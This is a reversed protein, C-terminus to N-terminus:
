YGVTSDGGAASGAGTFPKRAVAVPEAFTLAIADWEDPSRVGRKIMDEKRELLLRSHADYKYGPGCADTQISDLDPIDAGGPDALWEKSKMWMEARRNRPGGGAQEGNDDIPPPELPEGGFNVLRIIEPGYWDMLIDGVGAGQGGVDIFVRTPKEADIIQMLWGAGAVNDLKARSDVKIVKRGRRRAVSFRDVGFRAPDVGLILPGRGEITTKRAKLVLAPTIYSDHGSTQFAEAATTPYEQFFLFEDKLESIKARRWVIQEADLGHQDMLDTEATTPRFGEPVAKRYEEQWFWPIFIAEYDSGGTEALQWQQHFFNGLGNATSELIVETGEADPVAQLAGAAHTDAHPWFAVESGHFLQITQSRGAGKTGATAVKYDSDLKDFALEKASAAGTSPKVLDPLNDYFRNVFGFLNDTAEQEHTLIFVRQGRRHTARQFYRAGVYTSCGQQRGKLILARVRGTRERQAEIRGHLYLQARNLILPKIEGSKTRIRLCREAYAALDDRLTRRIAIERESLQRAAM